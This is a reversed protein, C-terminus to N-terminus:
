GMPKMRRHTVNKSLWHRLGLHMLYIFIATIPFTKSGRVSASVGSVGCFGVAVCRMKVSSCGEVGKEPMKRLQQPTTVNNCTLFCAVSPSNREYIM